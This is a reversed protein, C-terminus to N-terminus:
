EITMNLNYKCQVHIEIKKMDEFVTNNVLCSYNGADERSINMLSVIKKLYKPEGINNGDKYWLARPSPNGRTDYCLCKLDYGENVTVDTSCNTM